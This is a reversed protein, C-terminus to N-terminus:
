HAEICFGVDDTSTRGVGGSNLITRDTVSLHLVYGGPTAPMGTDVTVPAATVPLTGSSPVPSHPYGAPLVGLSYGSLHDDTATVTAQVPTGQHLFPSSTLTLDAVPATNDLQVWVHNSQALLGGGLDVTFWVEYRGDTLGGTQWRGLVFGEVFTQDGGPGNITLDERYTYQHTAPDAIQSSSTQTWTFGSYTSLVVPFTNDIDHATGVPESEHRYHLGYTLPAAGASLDPPNSIHGALVVQGGFPSNSATFGATVAPGDAYGLPDIQSVGMGGVVSLFPVQGTVPDGVPLQIRAEVANGWQPAAFPNTPPTNWSLVARIRATHAGGCPRRHPAPNIPLFVAFTLGGPPIPEDHVRVVATGLFEDLSGNDDWDAWFSVYELSGATCLGGGYGTPQKVTVVGVLASLDPHLGVCHLEEYSTDGDLDLYKSLSAGVDIKSLVSEPLVTSLTEPLNAAVGADAVLAQKVKSLQPALWRHAPVADGYEGLLRDAGLQQLPKAIVADTDVLEALPPPIKTELRRLLDLFILPRPKPQVHEDLVNGWTIPPNPNGAPPVVNYQLVARVAVPRAFFCAVQRRTLTLSAVYSLPKPGPIDHVAISAVGLDEGPDSFDGDDNWDAFFRVYERAGPGDCLNGGYGQERKINVIAYLTAQEPELGLCTVEEYDTAGALQLVDDLWGPKTVLLQGLEARTRIELERGDNGRGEAM